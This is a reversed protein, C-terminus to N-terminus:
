RRLRSNRRCAFGEDETFLRRPHMNEHPYLNLRGEAEVEIGASTSNLMHVSRRQRTLVRELAANRPELANGHRNTTLRLAM